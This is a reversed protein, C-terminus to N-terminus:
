FNLHPGLGAADALVHAAEAAAFGENWTATLVAAELEVDSGDISSIDVDVAPAHVDFSVTTDRAFVDGLQGELLGALARRLGDSVTRFYPEDDGALIVMRLERPANTLVEILHGVRPTTGANWHQEDLMRIAASLLTSEDGNVSRHRSLSILLRMM